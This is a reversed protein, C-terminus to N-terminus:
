CQYLHKKREVCLVVGKKGFFHLGDRQLDFFCRNLPIGSKEAVCGTVSYEIRVM